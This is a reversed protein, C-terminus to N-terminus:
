RGGRQSRELEAADLVSHPIPSHVQLPETIRMTEGNFDYTWAGTKGKRNKLIQITVKDDNESKMEPRYLGLLFDASEEIAGSERASHITLPSDENEGTGRHVHCLILISVERQKAFTKLQRAAKSVQGYSTKDLDSMDLLSLYDLGLLNVQRGTKEQARDLVHGLEDM